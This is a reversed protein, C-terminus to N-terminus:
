AYEACELVMAVIAVTQASLSDLLAVNSLKTTFVELFPACLVFECSGFDLTHKPRTSLLLKVPPRNCNQFIYHTLQDDGFPQTSTSLWHVIIPKDNSCPPSEQLHVQRIEGVKPDSLLWCSSDESLNKSQQITPRTPSNTYSILQQVPAM